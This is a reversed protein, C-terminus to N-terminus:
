GDNKALDETRSLTVAKKRCEHLRRALHNATKSGVAIKPTEVSKGEHNSKLSSSHSSYRAIILSILTTLTKM